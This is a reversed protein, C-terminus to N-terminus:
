RNAMRKLTDEYSDMMGRATLRNKTQAMVADIGVPEPGRALAKDIGIGSGRRWFRHLGQTAAGPRDTSAAVRGLKKAISRRTADLIEAASQAASKEWLPHNELIMEYAALKNM